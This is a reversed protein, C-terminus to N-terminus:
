GTTTVSLTVPQGITVTQSAPQTAIALPAAPGAIVLPAVSLNTLPTRYIGSATITQDGSLGAPYAVVVSFSVSGTPLSLYAFELLGARGADPAISPQNPGGVSVMSWGAPLSISDALATPASQSAYNIGATLTIQGATPSISSTSSTLTATQGFETTLAVALLAPLTMWRRLAVGLAKPTGETGSGVTVGRWGGAAQVGGM